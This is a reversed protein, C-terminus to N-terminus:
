RYWGGDAQKWEIWGGDTVRGERNFKGVSTEYPIVFRSPDTFDVHGMLVRRIRNPEPSPIVGLIIPGPAPDLLGVLNSPTLVAPRSFIEAPQLVAGHFQFASPWKTQFCEVIVLRRLGSPSRLMGIFAVANRSPHLGPGFRITSGLAYQGVGGVITPLLGYIQTRDLPLGSIVLFEDLGPPRYVATSPIPESMPDGYLTGDPRSAYGSQPLSLLSAPGYGSEGRLMQTASPDTEYAAKGATAAFHKVAQRQWYLLQIHNWAAPSWHWIAYGTACAVLLFVARAIRRRWCPPPPAYDLINSQNGGGEPM